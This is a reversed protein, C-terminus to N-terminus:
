MVVFLWIELHRGLTCVASLSLRCLLLCGFKWTGEWLVYLVLVCEVTCMTYGPTSLLLSRLAISYHVLYFGKWM